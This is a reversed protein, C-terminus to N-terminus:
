YLNTGEPEREHRELDTADRREASSSNFPLDGERQREADCGRKWPQREELVKLDRLDAARLHDTM